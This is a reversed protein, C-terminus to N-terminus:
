SGGHPRVKVGEDAAWHADLSFTGGPAHRVAVHPTNLVARIPTPSRSPRVLLAIPTGDGIPGSAKSWWGCRAGIRWWCAGLASFEERLVGILAPLDVWGEGPNFIAGQPTIPL